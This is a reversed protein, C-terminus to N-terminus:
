ALVPTSQNKNVSGRHQEGPKCFGRCHGDVAPQAATADVRRKARSSKDHYSARPRRGIMATVKTAQKVSAYPEGM